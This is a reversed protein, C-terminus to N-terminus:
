GTFHTGTCLNRKGRVRAMRAVSVVRVAQESGGGSVAVGSVAAVSVGMVMATVDAGGAFVGSGSLTFGVAVGADGSVGIGVGVGVSLVAPGGVGM